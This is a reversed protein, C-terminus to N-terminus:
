KVHHRNGSVRGVFENFSEEFKKFGFRHRSDFIRKRESNSTSIAEATKQIAEDIGDYGLGFEGYNTIDVWPGGSKPVVPVCGFYIAEAVAIGYHEKRYTHVYVSARRFLEIKEDESPNSIIKLNHPSQKRLAEVYDNYKEDVFGSLIFNASVRKAIDLLPEIAKQPSIRGFLLVLKPDKDALNVDMNYSVPIHIYEISRPRVGVIPLLNMSIDRTYKGHTLFLSGGYVKYIGSLRIMRLRTKNIIRGNEDVVSDVFSPGHLYNVTADYLFTTPHNNFTLDYADFNIKRLEKQLKRFNALLFLRNEEPFYPYGTEYLKGYGDPMFRHNKGTVVDITHGSNELVMRADEILSQTGGLSDFKGLFLAKM